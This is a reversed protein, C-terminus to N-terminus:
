TDDSKKSRKSQTTTTNPEQCPIEPPLVVTNSLTKDNYFTEFVRQSSHGLTGLLSGNTRRLWKFHGRKIGARERIRNFHDPFERIGLSWPFALNREGSVRIWECVRPSIQRLQVRGTKSEVVQFPKGDSVDFPLALIDGRRLGTDYATGIISAWFLGRRIGEGYIGREQKASEVLSAVEPINFAQPPKHVLKVRKIRRVIPYECRDLDAAFKWITIVARRYRAVSSPSLDCTEQLHTIWRNVLDCNLAAPSLDRGVFNNLHRICFELQQNYNETNDRESIYVKTLESINM